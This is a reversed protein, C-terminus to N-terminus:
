IIRWPKNKKKRKTGTLEEVSLRSVSKSFDFTILRKTERGVRAYKVMKNFADNDKPIGDERKIDELEDIVPAPCWRHKGTINKRKM